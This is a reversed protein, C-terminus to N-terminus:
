LYSIDIPDTTTHLAISTLLIMPSALTDSTCTTYTQSIYLQCFFHEMSM